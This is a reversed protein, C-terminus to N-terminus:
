TIDTNQFAFKMGATRQGRPASTHASPPPRSSCRLFPATSSSAAADSCNRSWPQCAAGSRFLGWCRCLSVLGCKMNLKPHFGCWQLKWRWWLLQHSDLYQSMKLLFVYKLADIWFYVQCIFLELECRVCVSICVCVFLRETQRFLIWWVNQFSYINEALDLIWLTNVQLTFFFFFLLSMLCWVPLKNGYIVSKKAGHGM